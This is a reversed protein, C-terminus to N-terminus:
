ARSARVVARAPAAYVVLAGCIVLTAPCLCRLAALMEALALPTLGIRRVGIPHAAHAQSSFAQAFVVVDFTWDFGLIAKPRTM